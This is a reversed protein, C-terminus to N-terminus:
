FIFGYLDLAIIGFLRTWKVRGSSPPPPCRSGDQHCPHVRFLCRPQAERRLHPPHPVGNKLPPTPAPSAVVFSTSRVSSSVTRRSRLSPSVM